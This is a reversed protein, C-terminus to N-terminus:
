FRRVAETLLAGFRGAAERAAETVEEHTLPQAALGAAHNSVLSVVACRLGIEAAAIVEPVTSMGVVDVGMRALMRIEAPSEYSPGLMAALVGAKVPVGLADAAAHLHARLDPDYARSLDPFRTGYAEGYLPNRGQFNVHDTVVVLAGPDLGPTIGGVSNTIVVQRVGWAALARVYRVVEAPTWGEYLHVRGALVAVRVGGLGGVSLAGAHGAVASVPLGLEAYPARTAGELRAVLDGLGSGLVLATAPAEGFRARLREVVQGVPGAEPHM